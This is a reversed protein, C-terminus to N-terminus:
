QTLPCLDSSSKLLSKHEAVTDTEGMQLLYSNETKSLPNQKGWSYYLTPKKKEEKSNVFSYIHTEM